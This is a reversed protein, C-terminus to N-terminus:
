STVRVMAGPISMQGPSGSITISAALDIARPQGLKKVLDAISTAPVVGYQILAQVAEPKVDCAVVRHGGGWLRRVMKAGMKGLGIIGLEM